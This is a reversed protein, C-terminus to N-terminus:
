AVGVRMLTLVKLSCRVLPLQVAMVRRWAAQSSVSPSISARNTRSTGLLMITPYRRLSGGRGRRRGSPARQIGPVRVVLRGARRHLGKGQEDIVRTREGRTIIMPGNQQHKELNTYAHQVYAINFASNAAFNMSPRGSVAFPRAALMMHGARALVLARLWTSITINHTKRQLRETFWSRRLLQPERSISSLCSRPSCVTKEDTDGVLSLRRRFCERGCPLVIGVQQLGFSSFKGSSV